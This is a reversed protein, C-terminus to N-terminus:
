FYMNSVCSEQKVFEIVNDGFSFLSM